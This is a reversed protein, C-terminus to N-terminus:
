KSGSKLYTYAPTDKLFELISDNTVSFTIWTQLQKVGNTTNLGIADIIGILKFSGHSKIFIAGGSSGPANTNTTAFYNHTTGQFNGITLIQLEYSFFLPFGVSYVIQDIDPRAASFLACPCDIDGTLLALDREEDVKVVTLQVPEHGPSTYRFILPKGKETIVHAATLIYKPGIIVGSGTAKIKRTEPPNNDTVLIPVVIDRMQKTNNVLDNNPVTCAQLVICSVALILVVKLINM